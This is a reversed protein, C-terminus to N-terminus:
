LTPLSRRTLRSIAIAIGLLVVFVVMAEGTCVLIKVIRALPGPLGLDPLKTPSLPGFIIIMAILTLPHLFWLVARRLSFILPREDKLQQLAALHSGEPPAFPVADDGVEVVCRSVQHRLNCAVSVTLDELEIDASLFEATHEQPQGDVYLRVLDAGFGLPETEVELHHGSHDLVYRDNITNMGETELARHTVRESLNIAAVV